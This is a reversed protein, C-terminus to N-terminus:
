GSPTVPAGHGTHTDGYNGYQQEPLCESRRVVGPGTLTSLDPTGQERPPGFHGSYVRGSIVTDLSPHGCFCPLSWCGCLLSCCVLFFCRLLLGPLCQRLLDDM